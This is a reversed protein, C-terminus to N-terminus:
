VRERCSARGIQGGAPTVTVTGPGPFRVQPEAEGERWATLAALVTWERVPERNTVWINHAMWSDEALDRGKDTLAKAATELMDEGTIENVFGERGQRNVMALTGAPNGLAVRAHVNGVTFRFASAEPELALPVQPAVHFLWSFRAPDAAAHMALDDFVAFWSGDVFVVHRHWRQLGPVTQYAHTADGVWHVFGEGERHLLLRGCFPHDPRRPNWEQGVGNILIVNHSMSHRAHPDPYATNGGGASLTQGLAHWVFDNEARYSHSYGGRPRCQFIMGVADQFGTTDSPPRTSVMVWGAEPFLARTPEPVPEPLGKVESTLLDLWPRASATDGGLATLADARTRLRGDQTLWTLHRFISRQTAVQRELNRAYDGFALRQIGLPMLHAYWAGLRTFYPSRGLQLGPLLLDATLAAQLM